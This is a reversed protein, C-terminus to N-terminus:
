GWRAGPAEWWALTMGLSFAGWRANSDLSRPKAEIAAGSGGKDLLLETFLEGLERM